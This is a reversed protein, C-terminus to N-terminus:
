AAGPCTSVRSFGGAEILISNVGDSSVVSSNHFIKVSTGSQITMGIQLPNVFAFLSVVYVSM